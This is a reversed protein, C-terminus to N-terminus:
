QHCGLSGDSCSSSSEANAPPFAPGHGELASVRGSGPCLPTDSGWGWRQRWTVPCPGAAGPARAGPLSACACFSNAPCGWSMVVVRDALVASVPLFGTQAHLHTKALFHSCTHSALVKEQVHAPEKQIELCQLSLQLLHGTNRNQKFFFFLVLM